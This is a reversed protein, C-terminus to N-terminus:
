IKRRFNLRVIFDDFAWRNLWHLFIRYREGRLNVKRSFMREEGRIKKTYHQKEHVRFKMIYSAVDVLSEMSIPSSIVLPRHTVDGAKKLAIARLRDADAKSLDVLLLHCHVEVNGTERSVDVEVCGIGRASVKARRLMMRVAQAMREPSPWSRWPRDFWASSYQPLVITVLRVDSVSELTLRGLMDAVIARRFRRACRRCAPSGCRDSRVCSALADALHEDRAHDSAQLSEVARGDDECAMRLTEFGKRKGKADVSPLRLHAVDHEQPINCSLWWFGPRNVDLESYTTM